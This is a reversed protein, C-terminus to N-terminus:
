LWVQLDITVAGAADLYLFDGDPQSSQWVAVNARATMSVSRPAQAQGHRIKNTGSALTVGLVLTATAGDGLQDALRKTHDQQRGVPQGPQNPFTLNPNAV